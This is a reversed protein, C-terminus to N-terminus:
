SEFPVQQWWVFEGTASALAIVATSTAVYAIPGDSAVGFGSTIGVPTTWLPQGSRPDLRSVGGTSAELAWLTEESIALSEHNFDVSEWVIEGNAPDVATVGDHSAVIVLGEVQGIPTGIAGPERIVENGENDLVVFDAQTGSVVVDDGVLVAGEFGNVGDDTGDDLKERLVVEGTAPDVLSLEHGGDVNPDIAVITVVDEGAAVVGCPLNTQWREAGTEPEIASVVGADEGSCVYVTEDDAAAFYGDVQWIREGTPPDYGSTTGGDYAVVVDLRGQLLDVAGPDHDWIMEGDSGFGWLAGDNTVAVGASTPAVDVGWSGFASDFEFGLCDDSGCGVLPRDGLPEDLDVEITLIVGETTCSSPLTRRWVLARVEVRDASEDVEWGEWHTCDSVVGGFLTTVLLHREDPTM